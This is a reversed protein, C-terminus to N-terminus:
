IIGAQRALFVAEGRTGVHLKRYVNKFHTSVTHPSLFLKEAIEKVMYGHAVMKLLERERRTLSGVDAPEVAQEAPTEAARDLGAGNPFSSLLHRAIAPSISAAGRAVDVLGDIVEATESQGKLLYGSAGARVADLVSRSDGFTSLVLTEASPSQRAVFQIVEIGSQDPLGLDVLALDFGVKQIGDFAEQATAAWLVIRARGDISCQNMLRQATMMDDEVLVVRIPDAIAQVIPEFAGM